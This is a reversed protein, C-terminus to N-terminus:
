DNFSQVRGPRCLISLFWVLCYFSGFAWRHSLVHLPVVWFYTSYFCNWRFIMESVFPNKSFYSRFNSLGHSWTVLVQGLIGKLLDTSHYMPIQWIKNLMEFPFYALPRSDYSALWSLFRVTLLGLLTKFKFAGFFGLAQLENFAWKIGMLGRFWIWVCLKKIM